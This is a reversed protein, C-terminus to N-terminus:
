TYCPRAGASHSSPTSTHQSLCLMNNTVQPTDTLDSLLLQSLPAACVKCSGCADAQPLGECLVGEFTPSHAQLLDCIVLALCLRCRSYVHRSTCPDVCSMLQAMLPNNYQSLICTCVIFIYSLNCQSLTRISCLVCSPCPSYAPVTASTSEIVVSQSAHTVLTCSHVPQYPRM